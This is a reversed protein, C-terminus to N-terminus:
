EELGRLALGIALSYQMPNEIEIENNINKLPDLYNIDLNLNSSIFDNLGPTIASGGSLYFANFFSQNNRKLYFRLTKRIEDIFDNFITKKEIAISNSPEVVNNEATKNDFEEFIKIGKLEKEKTANKYNLDLERMISTNIEHGGIEIERTFFSSNKGWAILTTSTHGINLIVDAGKEPLEYAQQYLNSLAIPDADFIGPKLGASKLISAHDKIKNKTTTVLIVDIKDLENGSSGLHHFDIIADTGDLPMHKKAELELSVILESDAMELTTLQRADIASGSLSSVVKKVKKPNINLKKLSEQITASLQSKSITDLNFKNLDDFTNYCGINDIKIKNDSKSLQVIKINYKGIDIGLIM